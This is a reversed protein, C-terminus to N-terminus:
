KLIHQYMSVLAKSEEEWSYKERVLEEGKNGMRVIEDPNKAFWNIKEAIELPNKPNAFAAIGDFESKWYEFDSMIIPLKCAMYEFSKVPMTALHNPIPYFMVIAIDAAKYYGYVDEMKLLGIYKISDSVELCQKKFEESEWWGMLWMEASSDLHLMSECVEKIGRVRTLGGAYVIITKDKILTSNATTQDIFNLMPYNRALTFKKINSRYKEKI